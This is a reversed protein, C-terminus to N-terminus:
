RGSARALDRRFSAMAASDGTERGRHATTQAGAGGLGADGDPRTSAGGFPTVFGQRLRIALAGGTAPELPLTTLLGCAAEVSLDTELALHRASMERREAEASMIIGRCRAREVLVADRRAKEISGASEADPVRGKSMAAVGRSVSAVPRAARSSLSEALVDDFTGVDDALGAVVADRGVFTAAETGRVAAETMKRGGAVTRVFLAYFNEVEAKLEARAGAPLPEFPNGDVKHAGAFILTPTVGQKELLRSEEVHLLVVGVSGSIGTPTTVIRTAGSILAYGGSTAIGNIVAIVPKEMAVRRIKEALEFAGIAEGGPSEIDLIIRRVDQAKAASDVQHGIGEYSTLGSSAGIWAGRNVLSGVVTIIATGDETRRYPSAGVFRGSAPEGAFRSGQPTLTSAGASFHTETTPYKLPGVGIRGGLVVVLVPLKQPLLLLPRNIVRSAINVLTSM